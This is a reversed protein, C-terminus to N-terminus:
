KVIHIGTVYHKVLGTSGSAGRINPSLDMMKYVALQGQTPLIAQGRFPWSSSSVAHCDIYGQLVVAERQSSLHTIPWLHSVRVRVFRPSSFPCGSNNKPLYRSESTFSWGERTHYLQVSLKVETKFSLAFDRMPRSLYVKIICTHNKFITYVLTVLSGVVELRKMWQFFSVDRM